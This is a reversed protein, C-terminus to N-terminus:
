AALEIKSLEKDRVRKILYYNYLDLCKALEDYM